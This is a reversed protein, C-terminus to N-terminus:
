AARKERAARLRESSVGPAVVFSRLLRKLRAGIRRRMLGPPPDSNGKYFKSILVDQITEQLTLQKLFENRQRRADTSDYGTGQPHYVYVDRDVAVLKNNVHCFLSAALDVGWGFKNLDYDFLRLRNVVEKSLAWVIENTQTVFQLSEVDSTMITTLRINWADSGEIKPSWVGLQPIREFAHRCREVLNPWDKCQADATIHLMVDGNFEDLCKQFKKGFFWSDPVSVWKGAGTPINEKEESYVVTVPFGSRHISSAIQAAQDHKGPWSDIFINFKLSM